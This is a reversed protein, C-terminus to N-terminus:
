PIRAVQRRVSIKGVPLFRDSLAFVVKPVDSSAAQKQSNEGGTGSLGLNEFGAREALFLFRWFKEM